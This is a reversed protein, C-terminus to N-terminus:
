RGYINVIIILHSIFNPVNLLDQIKDRFICSRCPVERMLKSVPKLVYRRLKIAPMEFKGASPRSHIDLPIGCSDYLRKTTELASRSILLATSSSLTYCCNGIKSNPFRYDILKLQCISALTSIKAYTM